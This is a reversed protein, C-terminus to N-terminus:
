RSLPTGGALTDFFPLQNLLPDRLTRGTTEAGPQFPLGTLGTQVVGQQRLYDQQQLQRPIDTFPLMSTSYAGPLGAINAGTQTLQAQAGPLTSLFPLAIGATAKAIAEPVAGSSELGQLAAGSLIQPTAVQSIFGSAEDLGLNLYDNIDLLDINNAFDTVRDINGPIDSLISQTDAGPTSIAQNLEAFSSFDINSFLQSLEDLRIQNLAQQTPDPTVEQEDRGSSGFVGSLIDGM